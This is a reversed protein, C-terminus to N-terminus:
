INDEISYNQVISTCDIKTPIKNKSATNERALIIYRLRDLLFAQALLQPFHAASKESILIGSALFQNVKKKSLAFQTRM